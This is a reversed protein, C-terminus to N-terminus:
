FDYRAGVLFVRGGNIGSVSEALGGRKATIAATNREYYIEAFLKLQDNYQHDFGLHVITDGYDQVNALMARVTNAGFTYAAMVNVAQNGDRSFSGPTQNGSDFWEYKAAFYWPGETHSASLGYIRNRGFGAQGRDDMGASILSGAFPAYSATVQVRRDDIRAASRRNGSPASYSGAFSLGLIEPSYYSVTDAVRSSTYTAFGSYYSNFQDLPAAIANYYPMWQQGYTLKGLRTDLGVQALRLRAGKDRGAGGQDYPDRFRLNATDFPVEVQGFVAFNESFRYGAKVGLRSYADRLGVYDDMAGRDHPRVAEAQMRVSGYVQASAGLVDTQAAAMGATLSLVVCVAVVAKPRAQEHAHCVAGNNFLLRSM